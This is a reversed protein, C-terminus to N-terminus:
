RHPSLAEQLSRNSDLFSAQTSQGFLTVASLVALFVMLLMMAYEVTTPGDEDVVFRVMKDLLSKM